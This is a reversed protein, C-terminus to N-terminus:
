PAVGGVVNLVNSAPLEKASTHLALIQKMLDLLRTTRGSVYPDLPVSYTKNEYNVSLTSDGSQGLQLVFLNDCHYAGVDERKNPDATASCQPAAPYPVYPAGIKVRIVRPGDGITSDLQRAVVSGLFHLIAEPSRMYLRVQFKAGPPLSPVGKVQAVNAGPHASLYQNAVDDLRKQLDPMQIGGANRGLSGAAQESSSTDNPDDSGCLLEKDIVAASPATTPPTFCPRYNTMDKEIVFKGTTRPGTPKKDSKPEAAAAKGKAQREGAMEPSIHLGAQTLQAISRLDKLGAADIPPGVTQKRHVSEINLGLSLLYDAVTEYRNNDFDDLVYSHFTYTPAPRTGAVTLEITDVFMYFLVSPTIGEDLFFRYEQGTLPKLEGQYFEQTDLVPVTFTPGGSISGSLGFVDPSVAGKPRHAAEGFPFSLTSGGTESATGTITSLTTFQMPRNLSARVINLLLAQQQAQEAEINFGVARSSFNDVISCSGLCLAALAGTIKGFYRVM